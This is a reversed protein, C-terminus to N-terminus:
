GKSAAAPDTALLEALRHKLDEKAAHVLNWIDTSRAVLSGHFAKFFWQEVLGEVAETRHSDSM